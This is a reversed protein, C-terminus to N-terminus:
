ADQMNTFNDPKLLCRVKKCQKMIASRFATMVSSNLGKRCLTGKTVSHSGCIATLLLKNREALSRSPEIREVINLDNSSVRRPYSTGGRKPRLFSVKLQQVKSKLIPLNVYDSIDIKHRPEHKFAVSLM